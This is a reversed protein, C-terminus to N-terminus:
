PAAEEITVKYKAVLDEIAQRNASRRQADLFEALVDSQVDEFAPMGGEDSTDIFIIHLGFASEIPEAWEGAPLEFLANAFVDGFLRRAQIPTLARYSRQLIFPDGAQQWDIAGSELQRRLSDADADIAQGRSEPSLYVHRFGRAPPIRFRDPNEEFWQRLENEKPDTPAGSDELFGTMKQALRRRIITDGQSLGLAIAERVLVEEQVYDQVLAALEAENPTRGSENTWITARRTIESTPVFIEKSGADESVDLAPTGSGVQAQEAPGWIFIQVLFMVGGLLVFHLFPDKLYKMM